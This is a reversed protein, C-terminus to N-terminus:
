LEPDIFRPHAFHARRDCGFSVVAPDANIVGIAKWKEEEEAVKTQDSALVEFILGNPYRAPALENRFDADRASPNISRRALRVKIWRPAVPKEGPALGLRAIQYTPRIGEPADADRFIAQLREFGARTATNLFGDLKEMHLAPENTLETDAFRSTARSTLEDVTFFNATKTAREPDMTPFIKGAFGFARDKDATTQPTATSIRGIFLGKAGQAFYGTYKSAATAEWTGKFCIGNAHVLKQFYPRYDAQDSLTRNAAATMAGNWLSFISFGYAPLAPREPTGYASLDDRAEDPLSEAGAPPLEIADWAASFTSGTYPVTPRSLAWALAAGGAFTALLAFLGVAKAIKKTLSVMM